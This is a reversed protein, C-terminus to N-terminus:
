SERRGDTCWVVVATRDDHMQAQDFGVDLLFAGVAPPQQWRQAFWRRAGPGTAFADAIGDTTLALADGSELENVGYSVHDLDHPLFHDISGADYGGKEQGILQDWAGERLRWASVDAVAALWVRRIGDSHPRAPVVAAVAVARVDDADWNRQKAAAYMQRAAALFVERHDICELETGRDLAERLAGVLAAVAVQAGIESHRSDSMGDAVAAVLHRGASDQGIRYADQRAIARGRHGPGIVSAARIDLGGLVAEDAAIGPPSPMSPLLWPAGTARSAKQLM